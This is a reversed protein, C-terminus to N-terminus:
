NGHLITNVNAEFIEDPEDLHSAVETSPVTDTSKLLDIHISADMHRPNVDPKSITSAIEMSSEQLDINITPDTSMDTDVFVSNTNNTLDIHILADPNVDPESVDQITNTSSATDTRKVKEKENMIEEGM